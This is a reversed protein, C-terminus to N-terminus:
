HLAMHNFARAPNRTPQNLPRWSSVSSHQEQPLSGALDPFSTPFDVQQLVKALRNQKRWARERLWELAAPFQALVRIYYCMSRTPFQSGSEWKHYTKKGLGLIESMEDQTQIGLGDRVRELERPALQETQEAIFSEIFQVTEGPFVLEGCHDCHEVWINRILMPDDEPLMETHDIQVLQFTGTECIPCKQGALSQTPKPANM